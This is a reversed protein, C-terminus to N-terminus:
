VTNQARKRRIYFAAGGGGLVLVILIPWVNAVAWAFTGLVIGVVFITAVAIAFM